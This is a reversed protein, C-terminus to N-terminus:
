IQPYPVSVGSNLGFSSQIFFVLGWVSVMVVIGVIAWIMMMRGEKRKDPDSANFVFLLVGWLFAIVALGILIPIIMRMLTQVEALFGGLGGNNLSLNGAQALVLAPTLSLLGVLSGIFVKIKKM